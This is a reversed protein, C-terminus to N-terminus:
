PLLRLLADLGSITWACYILLLAMLVDVGREYRSLYRQFLAGFLGWLLLSGLGVVGAAAAVLGIVPLSDSWPVIFSSMLTLSYLLVKPNILQLLLGQLPTYAKAERGGGSAHSPLFPKFALYLLYLAGLLGLVPQIKPAVSKLILNFAGALLMVVSLGSAMGVFFPLSRRLGFRRAGDMAMLNNPGPTYSAVLAFLLAAKWPIM